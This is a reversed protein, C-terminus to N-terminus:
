DRGRCNGPVDKCVTNIVRLTQTNQCFEKVNPNENMGGRQSQNGFLKELPDQHIRESLFCKVGPLTFVYKVMEIFTKVTCHYVFIVCMVMIPLKNTVTIQLNIAQEPQMVLCCRTRKQRTSTRDQQLGRKCSSIEGVEGPIGLVGGRVVLFSVM